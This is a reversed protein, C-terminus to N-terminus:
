ARNRPYKGFVSARGDRSLLLVDFADSRSGYVAGDMGPAGVPMGPVALGIAVPKDRLLRHIDAAPVHGEVAYGGVTATHCAGYRPDVGLRSRMAENGGEHVRVAFGSAQLHSVWDKCCGCSPDKWVDLPVPARARAPFFQVCAATGVLALLSRRRLEISTSAM